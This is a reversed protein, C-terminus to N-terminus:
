RWEGHPPVGFHFQYGHRPNGRIWVSRCLMCRIDAVSTSTAPEPQQWDVFHEKARPDGMYLNQGITCIVHGKLCTIAEGKNAWVRPADSMDNM